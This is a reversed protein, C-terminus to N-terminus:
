TVEPNNISKDWNQLNQFIDQGGPENSLALVQTGGGASHYEDTIPVYYSIKRSSSLFSSTGVRGVSEIYASTKLLVPTSSTVHITFSPSHEKQLETLKISGPKRFHYFYTEGQIEIYGNREPFVTLQSPDGELVLTGGDQVDQTYKPYFAFYVITDKFATIPSDLTVTANTLGTKKVM